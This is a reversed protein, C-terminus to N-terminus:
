KKYEAFSKLTDENDCRIMLYKEGSAESYIRFTDTWDNIAEKVFVDITESVPITIRRRKKVEKSDAHFLTDFSGESGAEILKKKLSEKNIEEKHPEYTDFLRDLMENYNIQQDSQMEHNITNMLNYYDKPSIKKIQNLVKGCVRLVKRTNDTDNHTEKIELFTETWYAAKTNVFCRIKTINGESDLGFVASKWVKLNDGPIGYRKIFTDEDYWETHEVKAIIYRYEDHDKVLAQLISGKQIISIGKVQEQIDQESNLLKLAITNTLEKCKQEKDRLKVNNFIENISKVVTRNPDKVVYEKATKGTLTEEIYNKIFEGFDVSIDKWIPYDLELDLNHLTNYLIQMLAKREVYLIIM